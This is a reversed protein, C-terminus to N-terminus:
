LNVKDVTKYSRLVTSLMIIYTNLQATDTTYCQTPRQDFAPVVCAAACLAGVVGPFVPFRRSNLQDEQFSKYLLVITSLFSM